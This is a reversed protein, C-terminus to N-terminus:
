SRMFLRDLAERSIRVITPRGHPCRTPDDCKMLDELIHGLVEPAVVDNRKISAKCAKMAAYEDFINIATEGDLIRQIIHRLTDAETGPEIYLPIERVVCTDNSIAEVQFGSEVLIQNQAQILQMEDLPLKLLTPHLLVQRQNRLEGLQRKKKEYNVREHATHQDILYLGDEAEALIYTGLVVGMQRLHAPMGIQGAEGKASNRNGSAIGDARNETYGITESVVGLTQKSSSEDSIRGQSAPVASVAFSVSNSTHSREILPLDILRPEVTQQGSIAKFNRDLTRQSFTVPGSSLARQIARITVTHLRSEDLLRIEKKAPHVNVDVMAPSIKFFLVAPPHLGQPVLDGYARKILFSLYKVDVARSNVFAFQSDRNARASDPAGIFGTLEIEELTQSVPIWRSREESPFIQLIRELSDSTSNYSVYEQGDRRYDIAIAPNALAIKRIEKLIKLSESKESKLFKKRAPVAYFLDQVRILTGPATVRREHKLIKGGRCELIGGMEDESSRSQITLLSVSAISALAEGRFGFSLISEIDEVSQIKSTAHREISIPLDEFVMGRGNDQILIEELGGSRTEITVQSCGADVANEVLEKVVSAPGEIVEGAAIRDIVISPLRHIRNQTM